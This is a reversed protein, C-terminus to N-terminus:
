CYNKQMKKMGLKKFAISCECTEAVTVWPEDAVCKIGFGPIWFIDIIKEILIAFNDELTAGSLIPYYWDM